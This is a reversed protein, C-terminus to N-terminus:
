GKVRDDLIKRPIDFTAAATVSIKNTEVAEIVAVMSEENWRKRPQKEAMSGM